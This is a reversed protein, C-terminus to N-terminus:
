FLDLQNGPRDPMKLGLIDSFRLANPAADFNANNNFIVYTQKVQRDFQQLKVALERLEEDSYHYLTRGRKSGHGHKAWNVANRGHFRWFGVQPTTVIPRLPVSNEGVDPADITALTIQLRQLTTQLRNLYREDYWSRHRFEVFIPLRPLQKRAMQLYRLNAATLTFTPPFQLLVGALQKKAVLPAIMQYFERFVRVTEGPQAEEQHRTLLKPPKVIFQFTSDVQTQWQEVMSQPRLGYFFTDVEVVRFYHQYDQLRPQKQGVILNPHDRWTTLGLTITM